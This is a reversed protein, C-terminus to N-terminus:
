DAEQFKISALRDGKFRLQLMVADNADGCLPMTLLNTDNEDDPSYPKGYKRLLAITAAKPMGMRLGNPLVAAPDGKVLRAGFEGYLPLGKLPLCKRGDQVIKNSFSFLMLQRSPTPSLVVDLDVGPAYGFYQLRLGGKEWSLRQKDTIQDDQPNQGTGMDILVPDDENFDVLLYGRVGYQPPQLDRVMLVFGDRSGLVWPCGIDRHVIGDRLLDTEAPDLALRPQRYIEHGDLVLSQKHDTTANNICEFRGRPTEATFSEGVLNEFSRAQASTLTGMLLSSLGLLLFKTLTM